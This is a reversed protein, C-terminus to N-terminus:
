DATALRSKRIHGDAYSMYMTLQRARGLSAKPKIGPVLKANTFMLMVSFIAPADQELANEIQDLWDGYKRSFKGCSGFRVLSIRKGRPTM